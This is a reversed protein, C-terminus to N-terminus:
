MTGFHHIDHLGRKWYICMALKQPLPEKKNRPRNSTSTPLSKIGASGLYHQSWAVYYNQRDLHYGHWIPHDYLWLNKDQRSWFGEISSKWSTIHNNSRLMDATLKALNSDCEIVSRCGYENEELESPQSMGGECSRIPGAPLSAHRLCMIFTYTYLLVWVALLCRMKGNDMDKIHWNSRKITKLLPSSVLPHQPPPLGTRIGIWVDTKLSSLHEYKMLKIDTNGNLEHSIM